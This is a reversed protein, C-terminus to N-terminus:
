RTRLRSLYPGAVAAAGPQRRAMHELAYDLSVDGSVSVFPRPVTCTTASCPPADEGMTLLFTPAAEVSHREFAEPDIVWGARRQGLLDSVAAVTQRMSQNKLGRLVLVAGAREAQDVLRRLSGQPM